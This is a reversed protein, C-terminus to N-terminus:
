DRVSEKGREKRTRDREGTKEKLEKETDGQKMEQEREQERLRERHQKPEKDDEQSLGRPMDGQQWGGKTGKEWGSPSGGSRGKGPGKAYVSSVCVVSILFVFVLLGVLMKKMAAEEKSSNQGNVILMEPPCALTPPRPLISQRLVLVRAGPPSPREKLRGM